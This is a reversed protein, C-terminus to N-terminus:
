EAQWENLIQWNERSLKIGTPFHNQFDARLRPADLELYKDLSEQSRAEYLIRYRNDPSRTFKAARFYGTALLAPIHEERMYKEYKEILEPAVAATIEYMVIQNM